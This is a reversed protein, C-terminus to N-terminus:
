GVLRGDPTLLTQTVYRSGRSRSGDFRLEFGDLTAPPRRGFAQLLSARTVPGEVRGLVQTFYRAALYGALSVPTPAEDYLLKLQQRYARVVPMASTSPNPVVQTVILPVTRGSGLQLLAALDVDALSVVYRQLKRQALLQTLRALELTAGVFLLVAPVGGGASLTTGAASDLAGLAQMRLNLRRAVEAIAPGLLSEDAPTGYVVGLEQVGVGQLQALAHRVQTDRSAFLPVVDEDADYRDDALWPGVQVLGLREHRVLPVSRLALSEGVSGLLACVAPDAKLGAMAKALDAENSVEVQQLQVPRALGAPSRNHEAIGAQVGAAHDRSLERQYMSGDLLQVVKLTRVPTGTGRALLPWAAAGALLQRRRISLPGM